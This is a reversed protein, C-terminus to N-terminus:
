YEEGKDHQLQKELREEKAYFLRYLAPMIFLSLVSAAMLGGIITAAMQDFLKDSLLPIMGLATTLAAMSIAMTRNLTADKVANVIRKGNKRELEIQDMLVIGNKIIMGSLCIMGVISMFGFPKDLAILSWIIGISALPLTIFIILPQRYANFMAVLILLMLVTAKPNQELLDDISRKEDYYEGGWHMSYGKPLTMSEIQPALESRVSAPTANVVGAQATIAPQRNRRWIVSQEGKIQIDDVVQGLPVSHSSFLSRVPINDLQEISSDSNILKIAILDDGQSLTGIQMGESAQNLARAIDTRNVGALRAAEQNIIPVLVKSEQRWDDRVYKTNPHSSMIDKAQKSLQKLVEPDSGEFRVEISYKDKTALKLDRFRPEAHAFEAALWQDGREVLPAIDAFNQTNILIQGYSSDLPEPEVTVSFRPASEGIYSSISKVEPQALLWQEVKKMDESVVDSRGGNPLWYDLFVIARDSSPMFNVKLMPAALLTAVLLPVVMLVAKKPNDVTWNVAKRYGAMLKSEKQKTQNHDVRIFAWCLLPTIIMAVVWSLLLSSCLVQVISLSFEASDTQSFLVPTTGMAAIVTAGLLPWAMESISEKVAETRQIGQKLKAVFLDVIVIANDVLMGLALIFSGLSVRQLDVNTMNMYVLTFLITLFLSVGVITASRWGMFILLVVVVIVVSEILNAVFNNISKTVEDPQYAIIGVSAGIPLESEFDALVSKLEDGINVVNIGNEPSVALTIAQQGNFRSATNIPTEYGMTVTAIDGLRVVGSSDKLENIGTRIMLNQIDALNQYQGTQEVRINEKGIDFDGGNVPSTQANLQDVLQLMSINSQALKTDSVAINVVQKRVGHLQVKKIGDVAKIRRQLEKSYDDLQHMPIDDGYVAFLMGYVESFEDQVVSIQAEIPLELKVDQVKRRLLDWQQPLEDSSYSEKLDVFIMSSGPRSLSRLKWLSGMEQLRTEVKDTVLQEVEEASAGPYLTVVVASKVTFTPDELKGLDFYSYIGAIMCLITFFIVFTRQRLAFTSLNM